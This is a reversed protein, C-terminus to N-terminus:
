SLKGNKDCSLTVSKSVTQLTIGAFVQKAAATATASNGSKSASSSVISWYSSNSSTAVTAATCSSTSGNYKFTGTVSVSWAVTNDSSVYSTTKTARKTSAAQTSAGERIVTTIHAGDKLYEQSITINPNSSAYINTPFVIVCFLTFLAVIKKM